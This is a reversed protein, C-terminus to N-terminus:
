RARFVHRTERRAIRWRDQELRFVDHYEGMAFPVPAGSPASRLVTYYSIAKALEPGEVDIIVNSAIHRGTIGRDRGRLYDAIQLRGRLPEQGPRWWEGDHTFLELLTEDEFTDVCRCYGVLVDRIAAEAAADGRNLTGWNKM